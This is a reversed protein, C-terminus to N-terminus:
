VPWQCFVNQKGYPKSWSCVGSYSDTTLAAYKKVFVPFKFVSFQIFSTNSFGLAKLCLGKRTM